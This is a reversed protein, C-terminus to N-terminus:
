IELNLTRDVYILEDEELLPADVLEYSWDNIFEIASDPLLGYKDCLIEYQQRQWEDQLVLKQVLKRHKKDLGSADSEPNSSDDFDDEIPNEDETIEIDENFDSEDDFIDTFINRVADNDKRLKNLRDRDIGDAMKGPAKELLASQPQFPAEISENPIEVSETLPVKSQTTSQAQDSQSESVNIANNVATLRTTKLDQDLGLLDYIKALVIIERPDIRQDVIAVDVLQFWVSERDDVGLNKINRRIGKYSTQNKLCWDFLAELSSKEYVTFVVKSDLLKRILDAESDHVFGDAQSVMSSLHILVATLYFDTSVSDSIYDSLRLLYFFSTSRPKIGHLKPNPVVMYGLAQIQDCLEIANKRTFNAHDLNVMNLLEGIQLTRQGSAFVQEVHNKLLATHTHEVGTDTSYSEDTHPDSILSQDIESDSMRASASVEATPRSQDSLQTDETVSSPSSYNTSLVEENPSAPVNEKTGPIEQTNSQYESALEDNQRQSLPVKAGGLVATRNSYDSDSLPYDPENEVEPLILPDVRSRNNTTTDTSLKRKKSSKIRRVLCWVVLVTILAVCVFIGLSVLDM